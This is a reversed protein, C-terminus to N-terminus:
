RLATASRGPRDGGALARRAGGAATRDARAGPAGTRLPLRRDDERGVVGGAAAPHACRRDLEDRVADAFGAAGTGSGAVTEALTELRVIEYAEGGGALAVLEDPGTLAASAGSGAVGDSSGPGTGGLDSSGPGTGGTGTDVVFTRIGAARLFRRSVELTGLEARRQLYEDLGTHEPLDLVPPCWRRLALGLLSDAFSRGPAPAEAENLNSEFAARDLAVDAVEPRAALVGHCHHDVLPLSTLMSATPGPAAPGSSETTVAGIMGPPLAAPIGVVPPLLPGTPRAADDAGRSRARDVRPRRGPVPM